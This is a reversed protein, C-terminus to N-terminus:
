NEAERLAKRRADLRAFTKRLAMAEARQRLAKRFAARKRKRRNKIIAQEMLAECRKRNAAYWAEAELEARSYANMLADPENLEKAFVMPVPDGDILPSEEFFVEELLASM